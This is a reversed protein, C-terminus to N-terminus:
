PLRMEFVGGGLRGGNSLQVSGHKGHSEHQRALDRAVSLGIGLEAMHDIDPTAFGPGDDEVRLLLFGDEDEIDASAHVCTKAFRSANQIANSLIDLVLEQDLPWSQSVACEFTFSVGLHRCHPLNVIAAEELLDAVYVMSISLAGSAHRRLKYAVLTRSLRSAAQEIAFRVEDLPIGHKAEAQVILSEALFLQNKADHVGSTLIDLVKHVM